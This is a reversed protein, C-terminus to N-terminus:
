LEKSERRHHKDKDSARGLNLSTFCMESFLEANVSSHGFEDILWAVKPVIGFEEYLFKHGININELLENYTPCAEDASVWGGSVFEFRKETVM